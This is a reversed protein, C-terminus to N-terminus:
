CECEPPPGASPDEACHRDLAGTRQGPQITSQLAASCLCAIQFGRKKEGRPEPIFDEEPSSAQPSACGETPSHPQLPNGVSHGLRRTEGKCCPVFLWKPMGPLLSPGLGPCASICLTPNIDEFFYKGGKQARKLKKESPNIGGGGGGAWAPKSAHFYKKGGWLPKEITPSRSRPFSHAM